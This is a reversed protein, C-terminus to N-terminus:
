CCPTSIVFDNIFTLGDTIFSEQINIFLQERLPLVLTGDDNKLLFQAEFRGCKNTDKNSFQYYIYYEMPANPDLGTKQVIGGPKTAIKPIGTKTDIMSFFISSTIIEQMFRSYDARGDQVVQMKLIPLTARQKIWFEM